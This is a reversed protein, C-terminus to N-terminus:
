EFPSHNFISSIPLAIILTAFTFVFINFARNYALTYSFLLMGGILAVLPKGSANRGNFYRAKIGYGDTLPKSGKPLKGYFEVLPQLSAGGGSAQIELSSPQIRASIQTPM